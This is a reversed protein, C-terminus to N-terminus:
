LELELEKFNKEIKKKNRFSMIGQGLLWLGGVVCLGCCIKPFAGEVIITAGLSMFGVLLGSSVTDKWYRACFYYEDYLAIYKENSKYAKNLEEQSHDTAYQKAM